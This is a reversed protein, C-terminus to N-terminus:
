EKDDLETQLLALTKFHTKWLAHPDNDPESPELTRDEIFSQQNQAREIHWQTELEAYQQQLVMCRRVERALRQQIELAHAEAVTQLKQEFEDHQNQIDQRLKQCRDDHAQAQADLQAQCADKQQQMVQRVLQKEHRELRCDLKLNSVKTRLQPMQITELKELQRSQHQLKNEITHTMETMLQDMLSSM